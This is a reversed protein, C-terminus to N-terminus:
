EEKKRIIQENKINSPMDEIQVNHIYKFVFENQNQSELTVLEDKQEKIREEQLKLLTEIEDKMKKNNAIQKNTELVIKCIEILVVVIVPIMISKNTNFDVNIFIFVLSVITGVIFGINIILYSDSIKIKKYKRKIINEKKLKRNTKNKFVNSTNKNYRMDSYVLLKGSVKRKLISKINYNTNNLVDNYREYIQPLFLAYIFFLIAIFVIVILIINIILENM